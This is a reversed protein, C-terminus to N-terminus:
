ITWKCMNKIKERFNFLINDIVFFVWLFEIKSQIEKDPIADLLCVLVCWSLYIIGSQYIFSYVM